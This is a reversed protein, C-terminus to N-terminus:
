PQQHHSLFLHRTNTPTAQWNRTSGLVNQQQLSNEFLSSSTSSINIPTGYEAGLPGKKNAFVSGKKM